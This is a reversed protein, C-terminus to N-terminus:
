IFAEENGWLTLMFSPPLPLKIAVRGLTNVKVSENNDDIIKM